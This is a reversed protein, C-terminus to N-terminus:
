CAQLSHLIASESALSCNTQSPVQDPAQNAVAVATDQCPQGPSASDAAERSAALQPMCAGSDAAPEAPGPLLGQRSIPIDRCPQQSAAAGARSISADPQPGHAASGPAPAMEALPVGPSSITIATGPEGAASVEAGGKSVEHQANHARSGAESTPAEQALIHSRPQLQGQVHLNASSLTRHAYRPM